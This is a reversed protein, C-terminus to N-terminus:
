DCMTGTYVWNYKKLTYVRMENRFKCVIIKALGRIM